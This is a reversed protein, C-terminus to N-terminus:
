SSSRLSKNPSVKLLVKEGDGFETPAVGPLYFGQAGAVLLTALAACRM